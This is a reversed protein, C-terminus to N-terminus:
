DNDNDLLILGKNQLSFGFVLVHTMEDLQCTKRRLQRLQKCTILFTGSGYRARESGSFLGTNSSCMMCSLVHCIPLVKPLRGFLVCCPRTDETRSLSFKFRVCQLCQLTRRSKDGGQASMIDFSIWRDVTNSLVLHVACVLMHTCALLNHACACVSKLHEAWLINRTASRLTTCSENPSQLHKGLFVETNFVFMYNLSEQDKKLGHKWWDVGIPTPVTNIHPFFKLSFYFVLTHRACM